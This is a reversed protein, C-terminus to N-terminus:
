TVSILKEKKAQVIAVQEWLQRLPFSLYRLQHEFKKKMAEIAHRKNDHNTNWKM